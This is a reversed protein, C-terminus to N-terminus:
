NFVKNRRSPTWVCLPTSHPLTPVTILLRRGVRERNAERGRETRRGGAKQREGERGGDGGETIMLWMGDTTQSCQPKHARTQATKERNETKRHERQKLTVWNTDQSMVRVSEECWSDQRDETESSQPINSHLLLQVRQLLHHPGLQISRVPINEQGTKVAPHEHQITWGEKNEYVM